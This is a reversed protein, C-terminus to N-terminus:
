INQKYVRLYNLSLYGLSNSNRRVQIECKQTDFPYYYLEFVCHHTLVYKSTFLLPNESGKYIDGEGVNSLDFFEGDGRRHVFMSSAPDDVIMENTETNNFILPPIWILSKEEGGILNSSTSTRLFYFTLRNDYWELIIAFKAQFSEKIDHINSIASISMSVNIPIRQDDKQMPPYEKRYSRPDIQLIECDLEDSHDLCDAVEDCEYKM